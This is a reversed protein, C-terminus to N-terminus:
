HFQQGDSNLNEQWLVLIHLVSMFIHTYKSSLNGDHGTYKICKSILSDNREYLNYQFNPFKIYLLVHQVHVIINKFNM